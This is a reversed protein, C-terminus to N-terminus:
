FEPQIVTTKGSEGVFDEGTSWIEDNLLVKFPFPVTPKETMWVWEDDKVCDMIIGQEWNLGPGEGRITLINGFGTDIKAIIKTMKQTKKKPKTVATKKVPVAKKAPAKQAAKKTAKKPKATAKKSVAKAPTKPETKSPKKM